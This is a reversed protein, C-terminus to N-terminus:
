RVVQVKKAKSYPTYYYNGYADTRYGRVRVYYTKGLALKKIRAASTTLKASKQNSFDRKSAYSVEYGAYNGSAQFQVRVQKGELNKVSRVRVEGDAIRVPFIEYASSLRGDQMTVATVVYDGADRLEIPNEYLDGSTPTTGDLTYYVEGQTSDMTITLGDATDAIEVKPQELGYVSKLSDSFRIDATPMLGIYLSNAIHSNDQDTAYMQRESIHFYASRNYSDDWTTDVIYWHEGYRVLNWAHDASVVAICDIGFYNCLLEYLKTYGACVTKGTTLAGYITQTYYPDSTDATANATSLYDIEDCVLEHIQSETEYVTGGAHIKRQMAKIRAYVKRTAAARASGAAFSDHVGLAVQDSGLLRSNTLFYYQPNAYVFVEQIKQVQDISLGQTSIMKTGKRIGFSEDELKTRYTSASVNTTLLEGCAADMQEYLRQESETLKSYYYDNSYCDWEYVRLEQRISRLTNTDTEADNMDDSLVRVVPEEVFEMLGGTPVHATDTGASAYVPPLVTGTLAATLLGACLKKWRAKNKKERTQKMMKRM